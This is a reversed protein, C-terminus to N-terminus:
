EPCHVECRGSISPGSTLKIVSSAEKVWVCSGVTPTHVGVHTNIPHRHAHSGTYLVFRSCKYLKCGRTMELNFHLLSVPEMKFMCARRVCMFECVYQKSARWKVWAGRVERKPCDTTLAIRARGTFRCFFDGRLGSQNM